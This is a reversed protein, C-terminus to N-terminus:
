FTIYCCLSFTVRSEQSFFFIGKLYSSCIFGPISKHILDELYCLCGKFVGASNPAKELPNFPNSNNEPVFLFSFFGLTRPDRTGCSCCKNHFLLYCRSGEAKQKSFISLVLLFGILVTILPMGGTSGASRVLLHQESEELSPHAVLKLQFVVPSVCSGWSCPRPARGQTCLLELSVQARHRGWPLNELYPSDGWLVRSDCSDTHSGRDLGSVGAGILLWDMLGLQDFHLASACLENLRKIGWIKSPKKVRHPSSFGKKSGMRRSWFFLFGVLGCLETKAWFKPIIKWLIFTDM